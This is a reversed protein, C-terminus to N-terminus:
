RIREGSVYYRHEMPAKLPGRYLICQRGWTARLSDKNFAFGDCNVRLCALACESTSYATVKEILSSPSIGSVRANDRINFGIGAVKRLDEDYDAQQKAVRQKEEARRNEEEIQKLKAYAAGQERARAVQDQIRPGEPEQRKQEAARAEAERRLREREAAAQAERDTAEKNQAAKREAERKEEAARAEAERRLREREAAAQEEKEQAAKREAERRREEAAWAEAERRLREREAAAQEEKEQAAKREAERRREEAARAEAERRVRDREAAVQAERDRAEKEQAARRVREAAAQEDKERREKEQAVLREREREAEAARLEAERRAKAEAERAAEAARLEDLTPGPQNAAPPSGKFDDVARKVGYAGSMLVLGALAVTIMRRRQRPSGALSAKAVDRPSWQVVVGRERAAKGIKEPEPPLIEGLREEEEEDEDDELETEYVAVDRGTLVRAPLPYRKEAKEDEARPRDAEAAEPQKAAARAREAETRAQDLKEALRARDDVYRENTGFLVEAIAISDFPLSKQDVYNWVTKTTKLRLADRVAKPRWPRGKEADPPIDPHTGRIFFHWAFEQGFNRHAPDAPVEIVKRGANGM